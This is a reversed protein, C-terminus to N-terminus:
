RGLHLRAGIMVRRPDVFVSRRGFSPSFLNDTAIGEEASDNLANFVDALLEVRRVGGLEFTRSIRVALLTQSSLRRTGPPELLIRLDGQSLAVQATAAWPKGSFHQANAALVIGTRPVSVSGMVRAMHPRDNALRGRANTLHNPDQGFTLFPTGAITSVQSAAAAAGSATQLGEARSWTYSGSVHWRGLRRKEAALVVGHYLLEFGEPNTLRFRRDATPTTLALVNVTRGDPLVRTDPAYHGGVETWGVFRSGRRHVYAATVVLARGIERDLSVSYEDTRPARTRPDFEFQRRPDVVSVLTTYGGTQPDFATTTVPTAGPHFPSLEGTLVGQHFRGYSGRLMTSGDRTLRATVGLRPSWDNWVYLTGLGRVIAGTERGQVDVAPLDQSRARSHDFRLGANLTLNRVTMTHNVFGAATVFLGGTISPDSSVAQFPRGGDHIFRTGTPVILPLRHEGRELQTGVRWQHDSGWPSRHYRDIMGKATTRILTLGGITAPAGSSVGTTRDFVSPVTLGGASPTDTRTYDFRGVRVDWVTNPSITHTLHGFTVAPVTARRHQTAEFPKVRTPTEPNAWHERHISQMLRLGPTFRWTLKAFLKDQAYIRPLSPDTGPQSTDDRLYQYGVFFWLRDPFAPGGLASTFDRYRVRGYGSTAEGSGPYPLRVPQSTLGAAQAYYSADFLFRDSGQRTIANVVAGQLNGFEASAGVSQIHVEEIFDSGPESRAEGSCPCTYNTGDTLFMNENTGSGFASLSNNSISAPSTPSIGPATRVFPFLSFRPVPTTQIDEPGFRFEVGSGRAEMRSGQVNVSTAVGQMQVTVDREITAGVGIQVDPERYPSFGTAEVELLYRGPPLAPFALRGTDSTTITLAGGILAPSSVRVVAGALAGGQADHM